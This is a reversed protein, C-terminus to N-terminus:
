WKSMRLGTSDWTMETGKTTNLQYKLLGSGTIMNKFEILKATDQPQPWISNELCHCCRTMIYNNAQILKKEADTM